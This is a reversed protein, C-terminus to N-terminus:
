GTTFDGFARAYAPRAECRAVYDAIPKSDPGIGFLYLFAATSGVVVDAATFREGMLWPGGGALGAELTEVMSPFDGWGHSLRNPQATGFREAMCPEMVGPGFFMWYLFRGRAPDDVAPAMTGAAYRDALYLCIAAGDAVLADGDRLAPVKGMPSAERFGAHRKAETDRIDILTKEYEVGLEDLMWIVRASRTKPCWYLEM